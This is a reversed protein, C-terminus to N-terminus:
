RLQQDHLSIWLQGSQLEEFTKNGHKEIFYDWTRGVNGHKGRGRSIANAHPIYVDHTQLVKLGKKLARVGIDCDEYGYGTFGEDYLGLENFFAHNSIFSMLIAGDDTINTGSRAIKGKYPPKSVMGTGMEYQINYTRCLAQMEDYSKVDGRSAEKLIISDRSTDYHLFKPILCCPRHFYDNCYQYEDLLTGLWNKTVKMDGHLTIFPDSKASRISKNMVTSYGKPNENVIVSWGWSKVEDIIEIESGNDVVYAKHPRDSFREISDLCERLMNLILPGFSKEGYFIVFIETEM